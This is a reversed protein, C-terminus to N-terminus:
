DVSHIAPAVPEGREASLYAAEVVEVARLGDVGSVPVPTGMRVSQVFSRVMAMDSSAGWPIWHAGNDADSYLILNQSFMDLELVGKEGVVSLTVDGWTPYSKPRSWSSDLTAFIGGDFEMTLMGTDEFDQHLMRSSTEAYVSTVEKGLLWRMLDTVHVTHDMVAGGGSLKKDVFWGFPCRGRNTGRIALPRGIEGALLTDRLRVMAPSFRCPFSTMLQVGASACAQIMAFADESRSALPKECLIHKGASAAMEAMVRHRANETTIVVADVNELLDDYDKYAKVGFQKAMEQSRHIDDDAIGVFQVDDLNKLADAYSYAHMHAFSMIGARIAMPERREGASLGAANHFIDMSINNEMIISIEQM